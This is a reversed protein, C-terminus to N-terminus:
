CVGGRGPQPKVRCPDTCIRDSRSLMAATATAKAKLTEGIEEVQAQVQSHQEEVECTGSPPLPLLPPGERGGEWICPSLGRGEEVVPPLQSLELLRFTAAPSREESTPGPGRKGAPLGQFGTVM